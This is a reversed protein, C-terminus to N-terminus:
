SYCQQMDNAGNPKQAFVYFVMYKRPNSGHFSPGPITGPGAYEVRKLERWQPLKETSSSALDKGGWPDVPGNM